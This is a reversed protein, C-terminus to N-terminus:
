RTRKFLNVTTWFDKSLWESLVASGAQTPVFGGSFLHAVMEGCIFKLSDPVVSYGATYALQIMGYSGRVYPSDYVHIEKELTDFQNCSTWGGAAINESFKVTTVSVIPTYRPTLMLFGSPHVNCYRSPMNYIDTVATASLPQNCLGTVTSWAQNLLATARDGTFDVPFALLNMNRYDTESIPATLALPTM